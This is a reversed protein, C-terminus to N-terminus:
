AVEYSAEFIDPKCPYLEGKIGQIIYDGFTVKHEGELTFIFLEPENDKCFLANRQGPELQWARHLWVPWESNDWRRKETMQFAEVIVPKKRYRM